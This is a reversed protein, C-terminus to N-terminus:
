SRFCVPSFLGAFILWRFFIASWVGARVVSTDHGRAVFLRGVRQGREGAAARGGKAAARWIGEGGGPAALGRGGGRSGAGGAGWMEEGAAV